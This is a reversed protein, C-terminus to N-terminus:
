RPPLTPTQPASRRLHLKSKIWKFAILKTRHNDSHKLWDQNTPHLFSVLLTKKLRKSNLNQTLTELLKDAHNWHEPKEGLGRLGDFLRHFLEIQQINPIQAYLYDARVRTLVDGKRQIDHVYMHHGVQLKRYLRLYEILSQYNSAMERYLATEMDTIKARSQFWLKPPESLIGVIFGCVAGCGASVVIKTLDDMRWCHYDMTFGNYIRM